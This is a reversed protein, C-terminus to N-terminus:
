FASVAELCVICHADYGGAITYCPKLDVQTVYRYEEPPIAIITGKSNVTM